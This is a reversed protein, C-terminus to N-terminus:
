PPPLAVRELRRELRNWIWAAEGEAGALRAGRPWDREPAARRWAGRLEFLGYRQKLGAGAATDLPLLALLRDGHVAFSELGSLGAPAPLRNWQTEGNDLNVVAALSLEPLILLIRGPEPTELWARRSAAAHRLSGEAPLWFRPKGSPGTLRHLLMGAPGEGFCWAADADDMALLRCRREGLDDCSAEGHEPFRCLLRRDRGVPIVALLLAQVTGERDATFDIVEVRRAGAAARGPEIKRTGATGQFVLLVPADMTGALAVARGHQWKVASVPGPLPIDAALATLAALACLVKVVSVTAPGPVATSM